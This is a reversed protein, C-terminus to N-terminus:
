RKRCLYELCLFLFIIAVQVMRVLIKNATDGVKRKARRIREERTPLKRFPWDLRGDNHVICFWGIGDSFRIHIDVEGEEWASREQMGKFTVKTITRIGTWNDSFCVQTGVPYTQLFLMLARNVQTTEPEPSLQEKYYM